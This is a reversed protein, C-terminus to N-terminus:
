RKYDGKLIEAIKEILKDGGLVLDPVPDAWSFYFDNDKKEFQIQLLRNESREALKICEEEKISNSSDFSTKIVENDLVIVSPNKKNNQIPHHYNGKYEYIYDITRLGAKAALYIWQSPHRWKGSYNFPLPKNLIPIELSALWGIFFANLEEMAYGVDVSKKIHETHVYRFRNLIGKIENSKIKMNNNLLLESNSNNSTIEYECQLFYSLEGPTILELPELGNSKLKKYAWLGPDDYPEAIVIYM